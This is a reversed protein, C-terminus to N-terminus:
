LVAKRKQVTRYPICSGNANDAQRKEKLIQIRKQKDFCLCRHDLPYFLTNKILALM